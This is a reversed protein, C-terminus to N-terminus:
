STGGANLLRTWNALAQLLRGIHEREDDNYPAIASIDAIELTVGAPLLQTAARLASSNYSGARLSGSIGIFEPNDNARM